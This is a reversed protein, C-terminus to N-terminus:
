RFVLADDIYQVIRGGAARLCEAFEKDDHVLFSGDTDEVAGRVNRKLWRFGAADACEVHTSRPCALRRAKDVTLGMYRSPECGTAGIVVDDRVRLTVRGYIRSDITIVERPDGGREACHAEALKRAYKIRVATGITTVVVPVVGGYRDRHSEYTVQYESVERETIRYEGHWTTAHDDDTWNM